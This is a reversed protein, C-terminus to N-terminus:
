VRGRCGQRQRAMRTGTGLSRDMDGCVGPRREMGVQRAKACARRASGWAAAGLRHVGPRAGGAQAVPLAM